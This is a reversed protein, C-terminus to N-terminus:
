NCFTELWSNVQAETKEDSICKYILSSQKFLENNIEFASLFEKAFSSNEEGKYFLEGLVDGRKVSDRESVALRIGASM